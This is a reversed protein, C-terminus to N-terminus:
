FSLRCLWRASVSTPGHNISADSARAHDEDLTLPPVVPSTPRAFAHSSAPGASSDDVGRRHVADVRRRAALPWSITGGLMEELRRRPVRLQKGVRVVPLGSAGRTDLFETALAYATTRGIRLVIAAEEVRLFDPPRPQDNSGDVQNMEDAEGV